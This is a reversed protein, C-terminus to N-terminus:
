LDEEARAADIESIVMNYFVLNMRNGSQHAVDRAKLIADYRKDRDGLDRYLFNLLMYQDELTDDGIRKCIEILELQVEIAEQFRGENALTTIKLGMTLINEESGVEQRSIAESIQRLAEDPNNENDILDRISERIQGYDGGTTTDQSPEIVFKVVMVVVAGLLIATPVLIYVWKMWKKQIVKPKEETALVDKSM